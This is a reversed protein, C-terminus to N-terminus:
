SFTSIFHYHSEIVNYSQLIVHHGYFLIIHNYLLIIFYYSLLISSSCFLVITDLASRAIGGGHRKTPKMKKLIKFFDNKCHSKRYKPLCFNYNEIMKPARPCRKSARAEMEIIKPITAIQPANPFSFGMGNQSLFMGM